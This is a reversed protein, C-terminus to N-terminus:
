TLNRKITLIKNKFSKPTKNKIRQKDKIKIIKSKSKDDWTSVRFNFFKLTETKLSGVDVM